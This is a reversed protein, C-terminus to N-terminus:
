AGGSLTLTVTQTEARGTRLIRYRLTITIENEREGTARLDVADLTIRKELLGVEQQIRDRLDKRTEVTNPRQLYDVLGVGRQRHLLWEGPRTMLIARLSDRVSQELGPWAWTGTEDPGTLLPFGIPHRPLHPSTTM